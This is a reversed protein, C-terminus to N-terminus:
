GLTPREVFSIPVVEAPTKYYDEYSQQMCWPRPTVKLGPAQDDTEIIAIGEITQITDRIAPHSVNRSASDNSEFGDFYQKLARCIAEYSDETLGSAQFEIRIPLDKIESAVCIHNYRIVESPSTDIRKLPPQPTSDDTPLGESNESYQTIQFDVLDEIGHISLVRQTVKSLLLPKGMKLSDIYQEIQDQVQQEIQVREEATPTM